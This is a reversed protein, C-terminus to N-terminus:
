SLSNLIDYANKVVDRVLTKGGSYVRVIANKRNVDKQFKANPYIDLFGKADSKSKALVVLRISKASYVETLMSTILDILNPDQNCFQFINAKETRYGECLYAIHGAISLNTKLLSQDPNQHSVRPLYNYESASRMSINHFKLYKRVTKHDCKLLMGIEYPNLKDELYLKELEHKTFNKM